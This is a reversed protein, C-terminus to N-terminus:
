DDGLGGSRLFEKVDPVEGGIVFRWAAGIHRRFGSIARCRM